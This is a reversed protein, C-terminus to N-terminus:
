RFDYKRKSTNRFLTHYETVLRGRAKPTGDVIVQQGVADSVKGVDGEVIGNVYKVLARKAVFREITTPKRQYDPRMEAKSVEVARVVPEGVANGPSVPKIAKKERASPRSTDGTSATLTRAQSSDVAPKKAEKSSSRRFDPIAPKKPLDPVPKVQPVAAATKKKQENKKTGSGSKESEVSTQGAFGPEQNEPPKGLPEIGGPAPQKQSVPIKAPEVSSSVPRDEATETEKEIDAHAAMAGQEPKIAGEQETEKGAEASEARGEKGEPVTM